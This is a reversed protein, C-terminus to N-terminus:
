HINVRHEFLVVMENNSMLKSAVKVVDEWSIALKYIYEFLNLINDWKHSLSKKKFTDFQKSGSKYM